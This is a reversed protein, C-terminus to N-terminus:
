TIASLALMAHAGLHDLPALLAVEGPPTVAFSTLLSGVVLDWGDVLVFLLIKFPLSILIPPLMMMSMSILLSAIIMDVVLFPLYVRFGMVFSVKLESLMFAPVLTLMDVDARTLNEPESTDVGRYELLTYVSSWNGTAEIQDFMFDRLPQKAKTWLTDYDGIEGQQYPVIAESYIRDITPAMVFLTMFLALSTIVQPPPLSQTGIARRLLGLVIIIRVFCTTMLMIAPALTLVTLLVMINLTTSLGGGQGAAQAARGASDLITLPNLTADPEDLIPAAIAAGEQPTPGYTPQAQAKHTLIFLLTLFLTTRTFSTILVRRMEHTNRVTSEDARPATIIQTTPELPQLGQCHEHARRANPSLRSSNM